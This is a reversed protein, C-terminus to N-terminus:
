RTNSALKNVIAVAQDQVGYGCVKAELSVKGVVSLAHQCAWGDAGARTSIQSIVEGDTVLDGINWARDSAEVGSKERLKVTTGACKGWWKKSIELTSQADEGSTHLVAAQQVWHRHDSDPDQAVQTRVAQWNTFLYDMYQAPFLAGLCKENRIRWFDNNMEATRSTLTINNAGVIGKLEAIPLMIQDLQIEDPSPAKTLATGAVTMTCGTLAILTATAVAACSMVTKPVQHNNGVCDPQERDSALVKTAPLRTAGSRHHSAVRTAVFGALWGWRAVM